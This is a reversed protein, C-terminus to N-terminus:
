GSKWEQTMNDKMYREIKRAEIQDGEGNTNKREWWRNWSWEIFIFDAKKGTKKKIEDMTPPM